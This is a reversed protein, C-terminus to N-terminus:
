LVILSKMILARKKHGQDLTLDELAQQRERKLQHNQILM